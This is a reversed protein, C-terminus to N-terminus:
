PNSEINHFRETARILERLKARVFDSLLVEPWNAEWLLNKIQKETLPQQAPPEVAEAVLAVLRRTSEIGIAGNCGHGRNAARVFEYVEDDSFKM